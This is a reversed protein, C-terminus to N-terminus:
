QRKALLDMVSNESRKAHAFSIEVDKYLNMNDEMADTIVWPVRCM